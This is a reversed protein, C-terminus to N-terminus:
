KVKKIEESTMIMERVEELFKDINVRFNPDNTYYKQVFRQLSKSWQLLRMKQYLPTSKEIKIVPVKTFIQESFNIFSEDTVLNFEEMIELIEKIRSSIPQSKDIALFQKEKKSVKQIRSADKTIIKPMCKFIGSWYEDFDDEDKEDTQKIVEAQSEVEKPKESEEKSEPKVETEKKSSEESVSGVKAEKKANEELELEVEAENKINEESEPEAEIEKKVEVKEEAESEEIVKESNIDTKAEESISVDNLEENKESTETKVIGEIADKIQKLFKLLTLNFKKKISISILLKTNNNYYAKEYFQKANNKIRNEICFWSMKETEIVAEILEYFAKKTRNNDPIQVYDALMECFKKTNAGAEEYIKLIYETSLEETIVDEANKESAELESEPEQAPEPESEELKSEPEQAPEAESEESENELEQVPEAESEESKSEPEQAPEPESEESKSEPEQAPEPETKESKTEPKKETIGLNEKELENKKKAQNEIFCKKITGCGILASALKETLDVDNLEVNLEGEDFSILFDNATRKSLKELLMSELLKNVQDISSVELTAKFKFM